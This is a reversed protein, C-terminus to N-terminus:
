SRSFVDWRRTTLFGHAGPLYLDRLAERGAEEVPQGQRWHYHAGTVHQGDLGVLALGLGSEHEGDVHFPLTTPDGPAKETGLSCLRNGCSAIVRGGQVRGHPLYGGQDLFVELAPPEPASVPAPVQSPEGDIMKHRGAYWVTLRSEACLAAETQPISGEEGGSGQPRVADGGLEKGLSGSGGRHPQQRTDSLCQHTRRRGDTRSTDQPLERPRRPTGVAPQFPQLQLVQPAEDRPNKRQRHVAERELGGEMRHRGWGKM